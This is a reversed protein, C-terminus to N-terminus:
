ISTAFENNAKKLEWITNQQKRGKFFAQFFKTNEDGCEMWIARRKLRLVEEREKLIKKRNSELLSFRDRGETTMFGAGDYNQIEELNTEIQNIEQEDM